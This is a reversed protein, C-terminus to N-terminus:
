VLWTNPRPHPQGQFLYVAGLVCRIFFWVWWAGALFVAAMVIPIGILVISLVMGVAFAVGAILLIPVSKWFTGILFDYHTKVNPSATDRCVYAMVVGFLATFGNFLAAIYLAYAIGPLVREDGAVAAPPTPEVTTPESM